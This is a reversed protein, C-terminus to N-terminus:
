EEGGEKTTSCGTLYAIEEESFIGYLQNEKFCGGRGKLVEKRETLTWPVYICEKESVGLQKIYHLFSIRNSASILYM